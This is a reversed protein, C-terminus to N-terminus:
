CLLSNMYRPLSNIWRVTSILLVTASPTTWRGIQQAHPPSPHVLRYPNSSSDARYGNKLANTQFLSRFHFFGTNVPVKESKEKSVNLFAVATDFFAVAIWIPVYKITASSSNFTQVFERTYFIDLLPFCVRNNTKKTRSKSAANSLSANFYM